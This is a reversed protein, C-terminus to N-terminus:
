LVYIYMHFDSISRWGKWEDEVAWRPLNLPIRVVVEWNAQYSLQHLVVGTDYLYFDPNLDHIKWTKKAIAKLLMSFM